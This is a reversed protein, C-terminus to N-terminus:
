VMELAHICDGMSQLLLPKGWLLVLLVMTKWHCIFWSEFFDSHAMGMVIIIGLMIGRLVRLLVVCFAQSFVNSPAETGPHVQTTTTMMVAM